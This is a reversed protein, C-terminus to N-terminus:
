PKGSIGWVFCSNQRIWPGYGCQPISLPRDSGCEAGDWGSGEGGREFSPNGQKGTRGASPYALQHFGSVGDIETGIIRGGRKLMGSIFFFLKYAYHFDRPQRNLLSCENESKPPTALLKTM